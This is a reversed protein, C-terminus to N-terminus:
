GGNGGRKGGCRSRSRGSGGRGIGGFGRDLGDLGFVIVVIAVMAPVVFSMSMVMPVSMVILVCMRSRRGRFMCRSWGGGMIPMAIMVSRGRSRIMASVVRM